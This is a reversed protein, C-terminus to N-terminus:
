LGAGTEPDFWHLKPRDIALHLTEGRRPVRDPPIRAAIRTAM